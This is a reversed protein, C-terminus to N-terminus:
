VSGGAPGNEALEWEKCRTEVDRSVRSEETLFHIVDAEEFHTFSASQVQHEPAPAWRPSRAGAKSRPGPPTNAGGEAAHRPYPPSPRCYLHGFLGVTTPDM